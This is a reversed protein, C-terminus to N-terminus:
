MKVLIKQQRRGFVPSIAGNGIACMNTSGGGRVVVVGYVYLVSDIILNFAESTHPARKSGRTVEVVVRVPQTRSSSALPALM